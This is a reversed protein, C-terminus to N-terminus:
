EPEESTKSTYKLAWWVASQGAEKSALTGDAELTKLREYTARHGIPLQDAIEAVILVPDEAERFIAM